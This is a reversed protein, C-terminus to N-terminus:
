GRMYSGFLEIKSKVTRKINEIGDKTISRIDYGKDILDKKDEFYKRTAEAFALHLETNVNIKSIGLSIAKKIQEEPIGSGGHLVLPMDPLKERISSLTDFSLGKWNDPYKGHINGIGCALADIGTNALKICDDPNAIEGRGVVGDESGGISGVEAEVSMSKAHALKVLESTKKVNEDIPLKSGDFMISNFGCEICKLCGEFSGHDLHMTIPVQVDFEKVLTEVLNKAVAYGGFYTSVADTLAIIMPTKTEKTVELIAKAWELNMVNFHAVAYHEKLAKNLSERFNTLM